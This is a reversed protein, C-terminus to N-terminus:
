LEEQAVLQRARDILGCQDNLAFTEEAAELFACLEDVDDDTGSVEGDGLVLRSFQIRAVRVPLSELTCLLHDASALLWERQFGLERVVPLRGECVAIARQYAARTAPVLARAELCRLRELDREVDLAPSTSLPHGLYEVRAVSVIVKAEIARVNRSASAFLCAHGHPGSAIVKGLHDRASALRRLIDKVAPDCFRGPDPLSLPRTQRELRILEWTGSDGLAFFLAGVIVGPIALLATSDWLTAVAILVSGVLIARKFTSRGAAIAIFVGIGGEHGSADGLLDGQYQRSFTM